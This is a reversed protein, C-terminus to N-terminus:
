KYTRDQIKQREKFKNKAGYQSISLYIGRCLLIQFRRLIKLSSEVLEAIADCAISRSKWSKHEDLHAIINELYPWTTKTM